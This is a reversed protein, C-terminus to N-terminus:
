HIVPALMVNGTGTVTVNAYTAAPDFLLYAANAAGGQDASVTFTVHTKIGTEASSPITVAYTTDAKLTLAGGLAIPGKFAITASDVFLRVMGYTGVPVTGSALVIASASDTPLTSLDIQVPSGLPLSVWSAASASDATDAQPLYSISDVMVTLSKVTDAAIAAAGGSVDANIGTVMPQAATIPMQSLRVQSTATLGNTSSSCAAVTALVAPALLHTFRFRM